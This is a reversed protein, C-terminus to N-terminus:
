LLLASPYTKGISFSANQIFQIIAHLGQPTKNDDISWKAINVMFSEFKNMESVSLNGHKDIFNIIEKFLRENTTSLYRNLTKLEDCRENTMVKPNYKNLVNLMHKRLPAEIITSNTMELHAIVDKLINVQNHETQNDIFILNNQYVIKM